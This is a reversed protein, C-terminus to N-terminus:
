CVASNEVEGDSSDVKKENLIFMIVIAPVIIMTRTYYTINMYDCVLFPVFISILLPVASDKRKLAKPVNKLTWLSTSYYVITGIWGVSFLLEVYNCHSYSNYAEPMTRFCDIGHGWIPSNQAEKWAYEIYHARTQLSDEVYDMGRLYAILPAVRYGITNYLFPVNILLMLAIFAFVGFVVTYKFISKPRRLLFLVYIGIVVIILGKRSGTMMVVVLLLVLSAFDIVDMKKKKKMMEYVHIIISYAAVMAIMNANANWISLREGRLVSPLGAVVFIASLIVALIKYLHLVKLPDGITGCYQTFAFLFLINLFLTQMMGMAVSRDIAYGMLIVLLSVAAFAVYSLFFANKHLQKLTILSACFFLILAIRSYVTHTFLFEAAFFLIFAAHLITNNNIQIKM